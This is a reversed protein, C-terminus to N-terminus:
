GERTVVKDLRAKGEILRFRDTGVLHLDYVATGVWDYVATEDSPIELVLQRNVTDVTFWSPDMEALVEESSKTKRIQMEGGYGGLTEPGDVIDVVLQYTDAQPICIDYQTTV